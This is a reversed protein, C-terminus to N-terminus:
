RIRKSVMTHRQPWARRHYQSILILKVVMIWPIIAYESPPEDETPVVLTRLGFARAETDAAM